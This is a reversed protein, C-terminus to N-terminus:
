LRRPGFTIAPESGYDIGLVTREPPVIRTAPVIGCPGEGEEALGLQLLYRALDYRSGYRYTIGCARCDAEMEVQDPSLEGGVQRKTEWWLAVGLRLHVLWADGLGPAQKTARAQSLNRVKFGYARLLDYCFAQEDKELLLPDLAAPVTAPADACLERARAEAKGRPVRQAVLAEVMAQYDSM